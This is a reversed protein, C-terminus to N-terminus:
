KGCQPSWDQGIRVLRVIFQQTETSVDYDIVVLIGRYGDNNIMTEIEYIIEEV